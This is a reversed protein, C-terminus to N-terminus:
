SHFQMLYTALAGVACLCIEPTKTSSASKQKEEKTKVDAIAAIVARRTMEPREMLRSHALTLLCSLPPLSLVLSTTWVRLYRM